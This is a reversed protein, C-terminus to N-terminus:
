GRRLCLNSDAYVDSRSGHARVSVEVIGWIVASRVAIVPRIPKHTSHKQPCPRPKMAWVAEDPVNVIAKIRVVAVNSRKRFAPRLAEVVEMRVLRPIASRDHNVRPMVPHPFMSEGSIPPRTAPHVALARKRSFLFHSSAGLSV